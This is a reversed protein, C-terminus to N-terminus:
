YGPNQVIVGNTNNIETLPVPFLEHVGAQFPNSLKLVPSQSYYENIVTHAIGWRVLDYFRHGELALEVRREHMLAKFLDAGTATVDPLITNNGNRARKRVLNISNRAATENGLRYAAEAHILLVEAYRLLRLNYPTDSWNNPVEDPRVLFKQSLYGTYSREPAVGVYMTLSPDWFAPEGDFVVTADLRPDVWDEASGGYDAGTEFADVLDQTPLHYGWGEGGSPYRPDRSRTMTYLTNGTNENHWTQDGAEKFQVELVSETGNERATLFIEHYPTSLNYQNSSIVAQAADFAKQWNIQVGQFRADGSHNLAYSSEFLLAKALFAQAAGKTVRGMDKPAYESKLPLHPIAEELDKQIQRFVEGMTARPTNYQSPNLPELVLPVGGYVRVLYFYFYARIFMAEALYRQKVDYGLPETRNLFDIGPVHKLVLNARYIGIYAESWLSEVFGIGSNHSFSAIAQGGQSEGLFAGGVEADDTTWDGFALYCWSHLQGSQRAGMGGINANALVAYAATLAMQADSPTKYFNEVVIDSQIDTELFDASCSWLSFILLFAAIIKFISKM